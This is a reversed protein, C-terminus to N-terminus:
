SEELRHALYNMWQDDGINFLEFQWNLNPNKKSFWENFGKVLLVKEVDGLGAFMEPQVDNCGHEHFEAAAMELLRSALIKEARTM